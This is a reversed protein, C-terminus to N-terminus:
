ETHLLLSPRDDIDLNVAIGKKNQNKAIGPIMELKSGYKIQKEVQSKSKCSQSEM